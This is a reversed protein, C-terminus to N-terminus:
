LWFCLTTARSTFLLPDTGPAIGAVRVYLSLSRLRASAIRGSGVSTGGTAVIGRSRATFPPHAAILDIFAKVYPVRM